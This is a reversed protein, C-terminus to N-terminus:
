KNLSGSGDSGERYNGRYRKADTAAAAVVAVVAVMVVEGAMAVKGM